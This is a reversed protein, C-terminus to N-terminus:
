EYSKTDGNKSKTEQSRTWDRPWCFQSGGCGAPSAKTGCVTPCSYCFFFSPFPVLLPFLCAFFSLELRRVSNVEWGHPDHAFFWFCWDASRGSSRGLYVLPVSHDDNPPQIFSLILLLIIVELRERDVIKAKLRSTKFAVSPQLDQKSSPLPAYKADKLKRTWKKNETM